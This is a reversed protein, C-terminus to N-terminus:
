LSAGPNSPARPSVASSPPGRRRAPVPGGRHSPTARTIATSERPRALAPVGRTLRQGPYHRRAHAVLAEVFAAAYPALFRRPDWAAMVWRGIPAKRQVLPVARVGAPPMAVNSPVIAIGYAAAALSLLTHPAGSELLVRPRLHAAQCAADFWERSGFDRRLVLLPQDALDAVDLFARRALPHRPSTVALLHLPLLLRGQFRADGAQILALHVEGRELRAPLRVAGDEVLHVEVGPHRRRHRELFGALLTELNQPTAGVRLVGREGARLARARDGLADADALLRRSQRLVDEGESTLQVRRGIRDFLQVGLDAELARIQRSLAPQSRAVRGAARAFGGADAIAVFARLHRLDMAMYVASADIM